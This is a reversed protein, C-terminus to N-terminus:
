LTVMSIGRYKKAIVKSNHKLWDKYEDITASYIGYSASATYSVSRSVGDKSTSESSFGGRYGQGAMTLVTVAATYGILKLIDGEPDIGAKGAYRWFGAIFERMGWFNFPSFVVYLFTYESNYPLVDVTGAKRNVTLAGSGIDLAQTNGMYGALKEVKILQHLPLSLHWALGNMNFDGQYYALPEVKRDYWKGEEPASFYPETAVRVPEMFVKLIDNEAESVAKDIENQIVEDKMIERDIVIAEAADNGPLEYHDIDVEIYNGKSDVLIEERSDTSLTVAVGEGWKLTAATKGYVLNYIGFKTKESVSRITVGTVAGPQKKPAPTDSSYLPAGFCYGKKMEEVTIISVRFSSGASVTGQKAEINYNGRICLPLGDEDKIATLDFEVIQGKPYSGNLTIDQQQILLGGRRLSVTVAENVLDVAPTPLIRVRVKSRSPEFRSYESRDTLLKLSTLAM